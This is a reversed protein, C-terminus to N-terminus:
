PSDDEEALLKHLARLTQSNEELSFGDVMYQTQQSMGDVAGLDV